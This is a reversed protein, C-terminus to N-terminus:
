EDCNELPSDNEPEPVELIKPLASSLTAHSRKPDGLPSPQLEEVQTQADAEVISRLDAAAKGQERSPWRVLQKILPATDITEQEVYAAYKDAAVITLEGVDVQPGLWEAAYLARPLARLTAAGNGRAATGRANYADVLPEYRTKLRLAHALTVAKSPSTSSPWFGKDGTM